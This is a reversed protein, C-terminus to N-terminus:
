KRKEGKDEGGFTIKFSIKYSGSEFMLVFQGKFQSVDVGSHRSEKIIIMPASAHSASELLVTM